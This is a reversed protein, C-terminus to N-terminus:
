TLSAIKTKLHNEGSNENTPLEQDVDIEDRADVYIIEELENEPM